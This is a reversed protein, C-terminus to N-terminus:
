GTSRGGYFTSEYRQRNPGTATVVLRLQVVWNVNGSRTYQDGPNRPAQRDGGEIAWSITAVPEIHIDTYGARELVTRVAATPRELNIGTADAITRPATYEFRGRWPLITRQATDGM